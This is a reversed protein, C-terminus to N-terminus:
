PLQMTGKYRGGELTDTLEELTYTGGGSAGEYKGTGGTIKYPNDKLSSGEEWTVSTTDGGGKPTRTCTGSAKWSEDPMYEYKGVCDETIKAADPDDPIDVCRGAYDVLKHGKEPEKEDWKDTVCTLTGAENITQGAQAIGSGLICLAAPVAVFLHSLNMPTDETFFM